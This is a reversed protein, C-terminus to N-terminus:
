RTFKRKIAKDLRRDFEAVTIRVMGSPAQRSWGEYELRRIYPLNNTLYYVEGVAQERVSQDRNIPKSSNKARINNDVKSSPQGISAFWNGKAQGGTYGKPPYDTKWESPNGVPTLQIVRVSLDTLTIYVIDDIDAGTKDAWNKVANAFKGM